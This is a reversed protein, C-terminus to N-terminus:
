EAGLIWGEEELCTQIQQPNLGNPKAFFQKLLDQSDLEAAWECMARVQAKDRIITPNTETISQVRENVVGPWIEAHLIFPGHTVPLTQTFLTEFPWVRSYLSLDTHRRLKYLYPIGVLAQGGVRGPGYLGWAEQTRPLRKEVLRLRQLVVGNAAHFPFGPSHSSLNDTQYQTPCGWFPGAQENGAIANLDGAAIFRNNINNVTDEVRNALEAWIKLWAQAGPHLCLARAFGSPYGYPFDLGVLVRRKEQVYVLLVNTVYTVGENRTRHYTEQRYNLDPVLEGTWVANSIPHQPQAGNAASWDVFLYADFLPM